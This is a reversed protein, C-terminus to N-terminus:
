EGRDAVQGVRGTLQASSGALHSWQSTVQAEVNNSLFVGDYYKYMARDTMM